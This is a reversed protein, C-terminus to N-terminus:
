SAVTMRKMQKYGCVAGFVILVEGAMLWSAPEPVSAPDVVQQWGGPNTVDIVGPFFDVQNAALGSHLNANLDGLPGNVVIAGAPPTPRWNSDSSALTLDEVIDAPATGGGTPVFHADFWLNLTTSFTGGSTSGSITM